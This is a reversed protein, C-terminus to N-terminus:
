KIVTTFIDLIWNDGVYVEGDLGEYKVYKECIYEKDIKWFGGRMQQTPLKVTFKQDKETVIM